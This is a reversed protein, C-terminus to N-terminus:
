RSLTEQPTFINTGNIFFRGTNKLLYGTYNHNPSSVSFDYITLDTDRPSHTIVAHPFGCDLWKPFGSLKNISKWYIDKESYKQQCSELLLSFHTLNKITDNYSHYGLSVINLVWISRKNNKMPSDTIYTRYNIPLCGPPPVGQTVFCLPADDSYGEFTFNQIQRHQIFSDLVGGLLDSNNTYVKLHQEGWPTPHFLPPNPMYAWYSQNAEITVIKASLLAVM